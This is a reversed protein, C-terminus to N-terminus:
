SAFSFEVLVDSNIYQVIFDCVDDITSEHDLTLVNVPPYMAPEVHDPPFMTPCQVVDFLDRSPLPNFGTRQVDFLIAGM